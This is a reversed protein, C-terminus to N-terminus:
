SDTSDIQLNVEQLTNSFFSAWCVAYSFRLNCEIVAFPFFNSAKVWHFCEPYGRFDEVSKNCFFLFNLSIFLIDVFRSLFDEDLCLWDILGIKKGYMYIYFFFFIAIPKLWEFHDGGDDLPSIHHAWEWRQGGRKVSQLWPWLIQLQDKQGTVCRNRISRDGGM